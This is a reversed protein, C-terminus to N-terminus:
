RGPIKQSQNVGLIDGVTQLAEDKTMGARKIRLSIFGASVKQNFEKALAKAAATYNGKTSQVAKCITQLPIPYAPHGIPVGSKTGHAKAYLIGENIRMVLLDKEFQAVSALINFLLQGNPTTTDISPDMLSRFGIKYSNLTKLVSDAHGVSRFARDLKWILLIDFKHLSAKKMLQTWSVRGELDSASTKDIYEEYVKWEM